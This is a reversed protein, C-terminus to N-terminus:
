QATCIIGCDQYSIRALGDVISGGVAGTIRVDFFESTQRDGDSSILVPIRARTSGAPVTVTGAGAVYDIGAQATGNLTTYSVSVPHDVKEALLVPVDVTIFSGAPVGSLNVDGVTVQGGPETISVVGISDAITANTAGM